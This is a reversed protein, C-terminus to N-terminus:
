ILSIDLGLQLGENIQILQRLKTITTSCTNLYLGNGLSKFANAYKPNVETDILLGGGNKGMNINLRRVNEVGAYKVVKILTNVVQNENIITGDKLIVRIKQRSNYKQKSSQGTEGCPLFPKDWNIAKFLHNWDKMQM